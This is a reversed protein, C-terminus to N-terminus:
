IAEAERFIKNIGVPVMQFIGEVVPMALHASREMFPNAEQGRSYKGIIYYGGSTSKGFGPNQKTALVKSQKPEILHGKPGYLGTGMEVFIGYGVKPSITAELGKVKYGISNVLRGTKVPAQQRAIGQVAIAAAELSGKILADGGAVALLSALKFVSTIDINFSLAGTTAATPVTAM